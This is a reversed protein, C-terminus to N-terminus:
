PSLLFSVQNWRSTECGDTRKFTADVKRGDITGHVEAM